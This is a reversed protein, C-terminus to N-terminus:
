IWQTIEGGRLCELRSVLRGREPKLAGWVLLM